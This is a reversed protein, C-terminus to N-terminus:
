HCSLTILSDDLELEFTIEKSQVDRGASFGTSQLSSRFPALLERCM